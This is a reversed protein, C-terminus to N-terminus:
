SHGRASQLALERASRLESVPDTEPLFEMAVYGDFKLGAGRFDSLGNDIRPSDHSM